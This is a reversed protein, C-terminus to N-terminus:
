EAIDKTVTENPKIKKDVIEESNMDLPANSDYAAPDPIYAEDSCGAVALVVAALTVCHSKM